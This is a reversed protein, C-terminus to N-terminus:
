WGGAPPPSGTPNPPLYENMRLWIKDEVRRMATCIMESPSDMWDLVPRVKLEDIFQSGEIAHLFEM